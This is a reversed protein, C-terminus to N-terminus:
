ESAPGGEVRGEGLVQATGGAAEIKAKASKSYRHVQVTLKRDLEGNGLLKVVDFRGQILGAAVLAELDVTSGADFRDLDRVNVEAVVKAFINNFGVKPLKQVLPMQGGDFHRKHIRGPQRAKQGKQGRGCTKGHGSARGRGFRTKKQVAGEPARLRSLIPVENTEEAM